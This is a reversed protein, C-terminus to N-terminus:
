TGSAARRLAVASWGGTAAVALAAITVVIQLLIPGIGDGPGALLGGSAGGVLGASAYIWREGSTRKALALGIVVGAIAATVGALMRGTLVEEDLAQFSAGALGGAAMGNFLGLISWGIPNARLGPLASAAAGFVLAGVIGWVIAAQVALELLDDFGSGSEIGIQSAIQYGIITGLAAAGVMVLVATLADRGHAPRSAPRGIPAHGDVEANANSLPLDDEIAGRLSGILRTVDQRWRSDSLEVAQRRALARLGEPLEHAAPMTARQVLVPVVDVDTRLLAREIERRLLDDPQALRLTGDPATSSMWQPGIVVLVVRCSDLM